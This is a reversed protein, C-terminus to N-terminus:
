PSGEALVRYYSAQKEIFEGALGILIEEASKVPEVRIVAPAIIMGRFQIVIRNQDGQIISIGGKKILAYENIYTM